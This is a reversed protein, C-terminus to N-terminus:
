GRPGKKGRQKHEPRLGVNGGRCARGKSRLLHWSSTRPQSLDTLVRASCSPLSLFHLPGHLVPSLRCSPGPSGPESPCAGASLHPPKMGSHLATGVWVSEDGAPGAGSHWVSHQARPYWPVINSERGRVKQFYAEPEPVPCPTGETSSDSTQCTRTM